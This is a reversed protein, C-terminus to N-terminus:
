KGNCQNNLLSGKMYGKPNYNGCLQTTYDGLLEGLCARKEKKLDFFGLQISKYLNNGGAQIMIWM